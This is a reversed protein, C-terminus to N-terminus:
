SLHNIGDVSKLAKNQQYYSPGAEMIVGGGLCLKDKYFVISQGPTVARQPEKFRVKVTENELSIIQCSSSIQRYRVKSECDFPFQSPANTVWSLSSATLEDCFLAPHNKGQAVYVVHRSIDKGGVFWPEGPGGIGMGKRQGLTFFAAGPHQGVVQGDLTEFHGPQAGIYRGLFQRFNREGIFCIGTSDKKESTALQYRRALQRVEAKELHGIPFLVQKLIADTLTYLFYTQDKLPDKATMLHAQGELHHIQAYHGTALYDAGLEKAKKLFCHFKIEKNCLIDPNPTRGSQLEKLFHDFVQSRYEKVFNISYCPISIQACVQRVDDFDAASTCEGEDNDEEWNKMFLGIVRYGQEKLLFACLSSDVGGSMGVVVTQEGNSQVM